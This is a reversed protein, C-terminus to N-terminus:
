QEAQQLGLFHAHFGKLHGDYWTYRMLQLGSHIIHLLVTFYMASVGWAAQRLSFSKNKTRWKLRAVLLPHSTRVCATVHGDGRLAYWSDSWFAWLRSGRSWNDSAPAPNKWTKQDIEPSFASSNMYKVSAYLHAAAFCNHSFTNSETTSIDYIYTLFMFCM